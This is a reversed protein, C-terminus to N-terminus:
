KTLQQKIGWSKWLQIAKDPDKDFLGLSPAYDGSAHNLEAMAMIAQYQVNRDPSDLLSLFFTSDQVKLNRLGEVAGLRLVPNSSATLKKLNEVDALASQASLINLVNEQHAVLSGPNNTLITILKSVYQQPEPSSQSLMVLSEITVESPQEDALKRIQLYTENNVSSFQQLIRLDAAKQKADINSKLQLLLDNQLGESGGLPELRENLIAVSLVAGSARIPLYEGGVDKSLFLLYTKNSQLPPGGMPDVRKFSIVPGGGPFTGEYTKLVSVRAQYDAPQLIGKRDTVANTQLVSLIKCLCVDSALAFRSEIPGPPLSLQAATPMELIMISLLFAIVTRKM